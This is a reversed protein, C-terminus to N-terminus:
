KLVTVRGSENGDPSEISYFYVSSALSRGAATEATVRVDQYGAQLIGEQLVQIRRGQVDLLSVRVFGSHELRFTITGHPNMPNPAVSSELARPSLITLALPASIPAGSDLKGELTAEVATQGSPLADFLARLAERGFLSAAILLRAGM